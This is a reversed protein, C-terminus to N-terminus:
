WGRPLVDTGTLLKIGFLTYMITLVLKLIGFNMNTDTAKETSGFLIKGVNENLSDGFLNNLLDIIGFMYQDIVNIIKYVFGLSLTDMVRYVQDGKDEVSGAPKISEGTEDTFAQTYNEGDVEKLGGTDARSFVQNGDVDVIGVLMLNIVVNILLTIIVIGMIKNSGM